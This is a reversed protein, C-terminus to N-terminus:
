RRRAAKKSGMGPGFDSDGDDYRGSRRASKSSTPTGKSNEREWQRRLSDRRTQEAPGVYDSGRSSVKRTPTYDDLEEIRQQRGSGKTYEGGDGKTGRSKSPLGKREQKDKEYATDVAKILGRRAKKYQPSSVINKYVQKPLKSMDEYGMEKAAKDLLVKQVTKNFNETIGLRKVTDYKNTLEMGNDSFVSLSGDPHTTDDGTFSFNKPLVRKKSVTKSPRTAKKAPTKAKPEEKLGKARKPTNTDLWEQAKTKDLKWGLGKAKREAQLAKAANKLAIAAKSHSMKRLAATGGAKTVLTRMPIFESNAAMEVLRALVQKM